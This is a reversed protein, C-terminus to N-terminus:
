FDLYIHEKVYEREGAKMDKSECPYSRNTQKNTKQIESGIRKGKTM